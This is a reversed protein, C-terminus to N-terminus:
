FADLSFADRVNSIKGELVQHCAQLFRKSYDGFSVLVVRAANKWALLVHLLLGLDELQDHRSDQGNCPLILKLM